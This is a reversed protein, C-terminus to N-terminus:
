FTSARSNRNGSCKCERSASNGSLGGVSLRRVLQLLANVLRIGLKHTVRLLELESTILKLLNLGAQAVDLSLDLGGLGLDRLLFCLELHSLLFQATAQRIAVLTTVRAKKGDDKTCIVKALKKRAHEVRVLDGLAILLCDIGHTGSLGLKLALLLVQGLLLGLLLLEDGILLLLGVRDGSADVGLLVEVATEIVLQLLLKGLLLGKADGLLLIRLLLGGLLLVVAGRGVVVRGAVTGIATGVRAIGTISSSISSVGRSAVLLGGLRLLGAM